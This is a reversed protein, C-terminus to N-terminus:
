ILSSRLPAPVSHFLYSERTAESGQYNDARATAYPEQLSSINNSPAKTFGGDINLRSMSPNLSAMLSNRSFGLAYIKVAKLPSPIPPCRRLVSKLNPRAVPM